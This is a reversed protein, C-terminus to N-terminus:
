ECDYVLEENDNCNDNIIIDKSKHIDKMIQKLDFSETNSDYYNDIPPIVTNDREDFEFYHSFDTQSM